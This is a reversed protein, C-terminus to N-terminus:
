KRYVGTQSRKDDTFLLKTKNITSATTFVTVVTTMVATQRESFTGSERTRTKQDLSFNM